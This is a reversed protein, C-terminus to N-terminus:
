NGHYFFLGGASALLTKSRDSLNLFNENQVAALIEEILDFIDSVIAPLHEGQYKLAFPLMTELYHRFYADETQIGKHFKMLSRRIKPVYTTNEVTAYLTRVTNYEAQLKVQTWDLLREESLAKGFRSSIGEINIKRHVWKALRVLWADRMSPQFASNFLGSLGSRTSAERLKSTGDSSRVSLIVGFEHTVLSGIGLLPSVMLARVPIDIATLITQIRLDLGRVACIESRTLNSRKTKLLRNVLNEHFQYALAFYITRKAYYRSVMQHRGLAFNIRALYRLGILYKGLMSYTAVLHHAKEHLLTAGYNSVTSNEINKVLEDADGDPYDHVKFVFRGSFIGRTAGAAFTFYLM